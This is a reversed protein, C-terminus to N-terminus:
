PLEVTVADVPHSQTEFRPHIYLVSPEDQLLRAMADRVQEATVAEVRAWETRTCDVNDYLRVCDVLVEARGEPRVLQGLLMARTAAKARALEAESPGEVSLRRAVREIRHAMWQSRPRGVTGSAIFLGDIEGAWHEVSTEEVVSKNFQLTDLRTGRGGSLVMSALFLSPEDVHGAPVGPWVVYVTWSEVNDILVASNGHQHEGFDGGAVARDSAPGVDPVDSFWHQVRQLAQDKDFNGVVGLVVNSPRYWRSHFDKVGELDFGRVADVTGIVPVHYPHGPAFAVRSIADMDRGNAGSYGQERERLVVDQQNKLNATDLGAQLFALRDSELFLSLDLAGSPFTSHYATEDESTFANNEGGAATLWQDYANNPVNASGEFMLHEFLHAVGREDDREDRSGVDVHLHLAVTDTRHGEEVVVRMGNPLTHVIADVAFPDDAALATLALIWLV